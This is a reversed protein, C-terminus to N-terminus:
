VHAAEELPVIDYFVAGCSPCKLDGDFNSPVMDDARMTVTRRCHWCMVTLDGGPYRRTLRVPLPEEPPVYPAETHTASGNRYNYKERIGDPFLVGRKVGFYAALENAVNPTPLVLGRELKNVYDQSIHVKEGLKLQTMRRSLRYAKLKTINM